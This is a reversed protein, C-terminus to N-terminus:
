NVIVKKFYEGSGTSIKLFYLGKELDNIIVGNQNDGCRVTRITEGSINTVDVKQLDNATVSFRGSNPVPFISIDSSFSNEPDTVAFYDLIDIVITDNLYDLILMVSESGETIADSIPDITIVADSTGKQFTVTNPILEYDIGNDATGEISYSYTIDTQAVAPLTITIDVSLSDEIANDFSKASLNASTSYQLPVSSFSENKLFVASDYASDGADGIALKIHYTQFPVVHAFADLPLTFGDYETGAIGTTNDFYYQSYSTANLCNISVPVNTGPIIAINENSYPALSTDPNPGSIFFGFVDNFGSNVFEPYEESAFVYSFTLLNTFPIFDFEVIAADYIQYGPTLTGLLSDSGTGTVSGTSGSSNPDDAIQVEGTSIIIGNDIGIVSDFGSFQGLSNTSGFICTSSINTATVYNGLLVNNVYYSVSTDPVTVVQANYYAISGLFFIITLIKRM